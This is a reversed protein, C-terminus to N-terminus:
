RRELAEYISIEHASCITTDRGAKIQKAQALIKAYEMNVAKEIYTRGKFTIMYWSFKM